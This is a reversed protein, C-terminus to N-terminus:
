AHAAASGGALPQPAAPPTPATPAGGGPAARWALPAALAARVGSLAGRAADLPRLLLPRGPPARAPALGARAAGGGRGNIDVPPPTARYEPLGGGADKTGPAAPLLGQERAWAAADEEGMRVMFDIHEPTPPALIM